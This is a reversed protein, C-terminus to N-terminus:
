QYIDERAYGHIYFQSVIHMIKPKIRKELENYADNLRQKKIRGKNRIIEVLDLNNLELVSLVKKRTNKKNSEAM